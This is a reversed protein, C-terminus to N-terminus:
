TEWFWRVRAKESPGPQGGVMNYVKLEQMAGTWENQPRYNGRGAKRDDILEDRGWQSEAVIGPQQQSLGSVTTWVVSSKIGRNRWQRRYSSRVGGFRFVQAKDSKM